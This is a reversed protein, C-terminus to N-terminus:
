FLFVGLDLVKYKIRVIQDDLLPICLVNISLLECYNFFAVIYVQQPVLSQTNYQILLTLESNKCRCNTSGLRTSHILRYSKGIDRLPVFFHLYITANISM